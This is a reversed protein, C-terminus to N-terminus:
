CIKEAKLKVVMKPQANMMPPFVLSATLSFFSSAFLQHSEISSALSSDTINSVKTSQNFMLLLLYSIIIYHKKEGVTPITICVKVSFHCTRPVHWRFGILKLVSNLNEFKWIKYRNTYNPIQHIGTSFLLLFHYWFLFLSIKFTSIGRFVKMTNQIYTQILKTKNCMKGDHTSGIMVHKTWKGNHFILQISVQCSSM